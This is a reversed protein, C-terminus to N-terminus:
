GGCTVQEGCWRRRRTKSGAQTKCTSTAYLEDRAGNGGVSTCLSLIDQASKKRAKIAIRKGGIAPISLVGDPLGRGRRADAQDVRVVWWSKFLTASVKYSYHPDFNTYTCGVGNHVNSEAAEAIERAQEM